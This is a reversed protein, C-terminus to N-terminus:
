VYETALVQQDTIQPGTIDITGLVGPRDQRQQDSTQALRPRRHSNDDPRITPKAAPSHQPPTIPMLNTIEHPQGLITTEVRHRLREETMGLLEVLGTVTLLAQEALHVIGGLGPLLGAPYDDFSLVARFPAIRPIDDRVEGAFGMDEIPLAVTGPAVHFVANLFLLEVEKRIAGTTM